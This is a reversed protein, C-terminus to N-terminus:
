PITVNYTGTNKASGSTVTLSLQWSGSTPFESTPVNFVGCDYSNVDQQVSSSGLQLTSQGTQTATLACSGSTTGNVLTGIHVNTSQVNAGTLQVTFGGSPVTSATGSSGNNLTSTPTSSSKRDDSAKNDAKPAKSYDITAATGVKVTQKAAHKYYAYGGVAGLALLAAVIIVFLKKNSKTPKSKPTYMTVIIGGSLM